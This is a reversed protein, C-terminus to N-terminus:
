IDNPETTVGHLIQYKKKRKKNVEKGNQNADINVKYEM